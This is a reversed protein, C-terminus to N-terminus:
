PTDPTLGADPGFAPPVAIVIVPVPKTLPAVTRIPWPLPAPGDAIGAELTVTTEGVLIVAVVPPGALAPRKLTNTTSAAPVLRALPRSQNVYVGGGGGVM